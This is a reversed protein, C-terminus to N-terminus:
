AANAGRTPFEMDDADNVALRNAETQLQLLRSRLQERENRTSELAGATVQHDIRERDLAATLEELRRQFAEGSVRADAEARLVRESATKTADEARQLQTERLKLASVVVGSKDLLRDRNTKLENLETQQAAASAEAAAIRKEAKERTYNAETLKQDLERLEEGRQALLRRAEGLLKEAAAARARVAEIQMEVRSQESGHRTSNAEITTRLRDRESAVENHSAELQL